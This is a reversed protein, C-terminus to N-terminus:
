LRPRTAPEQRSDATRCRGGLGDDTLASVHYYVMSAEHGVRRENLLARCVLRQYLKGGTAMRVAKM